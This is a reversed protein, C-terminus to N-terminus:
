EEAEEEEEDDRIVDTRMPESDDAAQATDKRDLRELLEGIQEASLQKAVVRKEEDLLFLKPTSYVDFTSRFNLSLLNTVGGYILKTASDTQNIAPNDSVHIWDGLKKDRIFKMWPETEFDNGIAYIELGKPQWKEYLEQLRPMEKKCHGCTSEWIALVTYKNDLDYLSVWNTLTTDPLILNPVPEGCLTYQLESAREIVKDLQDETLWDVRGTVYYEQVLGYFVKDMCMVNSAEAAYTIHHVTYKFMDYNDMKEVLQKGHMLLSDPIQPLVQSWYRDLKRHFMQDRVLRPDKLDVNDWYKDRYTYYRWVREDEIGAPPDGVQVDISMKLMKAFLLNPYAEIISAQFAEVQENLGKIKKTAKAKEADTATSDALVADFPTRQEKKQQIFRLYDVFIENEQSKIVNLGGVLNNVDTELEIEEETVIIDFFQPGPLVVAYKGGEEYPKGQFTFVGNADARTTDNYYLKEGYYNALYVTSDALGNVKIKISHETSGSNADQAKACFLAVLSLMTLAIRQVKM